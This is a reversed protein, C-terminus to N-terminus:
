RRKGAGARGRQKGGAREAKETRRALQKRKDSKRAAVTQYRVKKTKTGAKSPAAKRVEKGGPAATQPKKEARAPERTRPPAAPSAARSSSPSGAAPAVASPGYILTEPDFDEVVTVTAVQEEDEYEEELERAKRKGKDASPAM